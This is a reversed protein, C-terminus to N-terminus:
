IGLDQADARGEECTYDHGGESVHRKVALTYYKGPDAGIAVEYNGKTDSRDHGVLTDPGGDKHYAEVRRDRKCAGKPSSVKGKAHYNTPSIGLFSMSVNTDYSHGAFAGSALVLAAGAVVALTGVCKRM